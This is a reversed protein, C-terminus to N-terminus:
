RAEEIAALREATTPHTFLLSYVLAPPDLDSLNTAALRRFASAFADYEGTLELAFRDARREWRRSIATLLPLAALGLAFGLLLVLPLRGPDAADTGLTAWVVITAAVAGLVSLLTGLLLHRERRHGLEHAVVTRVEATPAAALLTDTVVIRRTRGLGTVYANVKRTRRSTDEVLVNEVPVTAREALARLDSSLPEERLAAYHNFLPAVLVPALFTLLVAALAAGAAAPVVWWGPLVRALAVLGLLLVATLV